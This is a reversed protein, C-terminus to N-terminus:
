SKKGGSPSWKGTGPSPLEAEQGVTALGADVHEGMREGYLRPLHLPIGPHQGRIVQEPWIDLIPVPANM